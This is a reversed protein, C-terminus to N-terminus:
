DGLDTSVHGNVASSGRGGLGLDRLIPVSVDSASIPTGNYHTVAVLRDALRGELNARMWATVQADRNQEIVYVRDLGEVFEIVSKDIPLARLRLYGSPVGRERLLDRAEAMAVHTSGYAILGIRSQPDADVIPRPLSGRLTEHKRAVRDLNRKWDE